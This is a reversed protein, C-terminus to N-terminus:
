AIGTLFAAGTLAIAGGAARVAIRGAPWRLLSGIAIGALHLLGTALTFGLAYSLANAAYPLEAGHAHGHLIAFAGVMVAAVGPSLRLAAAVLLGLVIVSVAIGSEVAPLSLGAMGLAGGLAMAVVFLVPLLRVAGAGLLTAWIGVAVMAVLHDWGHIPHVFGSAFGGM